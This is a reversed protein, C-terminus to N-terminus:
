RLKVRAVLELRADCSCFMRLQSQGTRMVECSVAQSFVPQSQVRRIVSAANEYRARDADVQAERSGIDATRAFALWVMRFSSPCSHLVVTSGM